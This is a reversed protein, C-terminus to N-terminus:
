LNVWREGVGIEVQFRSILNCLFITQSIYINSIHRTMNVIGGIARGTISLDDVSCM